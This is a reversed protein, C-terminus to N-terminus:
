KAGISEVGGPGFLGPDGPGVGGPVLQFGGPERRDAGHADIRHTEARSIRYTPHNHSSSRHAVCNAALGRSRVALRCRERGLHFLEHDALNRFPDRYLKPKTESMDPYRDRRGLISPWTSSCGAPGVCLRM